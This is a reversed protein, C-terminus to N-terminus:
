TVKSQLLLVSSLYNTASKRAPIARLAGTQVRKKCRRQQLFPAATDHDFFSVAGFGPAM